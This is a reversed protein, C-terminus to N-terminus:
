LYTVFLNQAMSDRTAGPLSLFIVTAKISIELILNLDLKNFLGILKEKLMPNPM